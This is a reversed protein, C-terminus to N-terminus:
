QLLRVSAANAVALNSKDRVDSFTLDWAGRKLHRLPVPSIYAHIYPLVMAIREREWFM